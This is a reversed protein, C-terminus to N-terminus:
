TETQLSNELDKLLELLYAGRRSLSQAGTKAVMKRYGGKYLDLCEIAFSAPIEHDKKWQPSQCVITYPMRTTPRPSKELRYTYTYGRSSRSYKREDEYKELYALFAEDSIHM